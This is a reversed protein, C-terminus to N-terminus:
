GMIRVKKGQPNKSMLEEITMISGKADIIKQKATESLSLAVVNIKKTLDGTGLVKGPVIVTDGDELHKQLKFINVEPRNSLPAELVTAIRKWLPVKKEIALTKLDVIVRALQNNKIGKM